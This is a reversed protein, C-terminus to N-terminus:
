VSLRPLEEPACVQSLFDDVHLGLESALEDAAWYGIRAKNCVVSAWGSCRGFLPGVEMLPIRRRYFFARFADASIRISTANPHRGSQSVLVDPRSAMVYRRSLEAVGAVNVPDAIVSALWAVADDSPRLNVLMELIQVNTLNRVENPSM